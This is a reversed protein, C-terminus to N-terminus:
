SSKPSCPFPEFRTIAAQYIAACPELWLDQGTLVAQM